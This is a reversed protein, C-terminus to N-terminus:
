PYVADFGDWKYTRNLTSTFCDNSGIVSKLIIHRIPTTHPIFADSQNTIFDLLIGIGASPSDLYIGLGSHLDGAVDVCSPSGYTSIIDGVTINFDPKLYISHLIGGTVNVTGFLRCHVSTKCRDEDRWEFYLQQLHSDLVIASVGKIRKLLRDAQNMTMSQGPCLGNWCPLKSSGEGLLNSRLHNSQCAGTLSFLLTTAILLRILRM